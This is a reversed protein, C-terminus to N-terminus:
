NGCTSGRCICSNDDDDSWEGDDYDGKCPACCEDCESDSDAWDCDKDCAYFLSGCALVALVVLLKKMM